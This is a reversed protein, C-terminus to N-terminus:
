RLLLTVVWGHDARVGGMATGFLLTRPPVFTSVLIDEQTFREFNCQVDEYPALFGHLGRTGGYIVGRPHAVMRIPHYLLSSNNTLLRWTDADRGLFLREFIKTTASVVLGEETQVASSVYDIELAEEFGVTSRVDGTWWEVFPENSTLVVQDEAVWTLSRIEKQSVSPELMRWAGDVFTAARGRRAVVFTADDLPAEAVDALPSELDIEVGFTFDDGLPAAYRDDLGVIPPRSGGLRDIARTTTVVVEIADPRWRYITHRDAFLAEDEGLTVVGSFGGDLQTDIPAVAFAPCDFPLLTQTPTAETWPAVADGDFRTTWARAPRPLRVQFPRDTPLLGPELLLAEPSADFLTVDLTVEDAVTLPATTLSEDPAIVYRKQLERLALLETGRTFEPPPAFEVLRPADSGGCAFSVALLILAGRRM